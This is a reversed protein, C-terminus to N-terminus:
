RKFGVALNAGVVEYTLNLAGEWGQGVKGVIIAQRKGDGLAIGGLPKRAIIYSPLKYRQHNIIKHGKSKSSIYITSETLFKRGWDKSYRKKNSEYTDVMYNKYRMFIQKVKPMKKFKGIHYHNLKSNILKSKQAWFKKFGDKRNSVHLKGMDKRYNYKWVIKDTVLDQIVVDIDILWAPDTSDHEVIYAFKGSQTYGLPYFNDSIFSHTGKPFLKRDSFTSKVLNSLSLKKPLTTNVRKKNPKTLNVVKCKLHAERMNLKTAKRVYKLIKDLEKKSYNNSVNRSDIVVKCNKQGYNLLSVKLGKIHALNAELHKYRKHPTNAVFSWTVADINSEPASYYTYFLAKHLIIGDKDLVNSQPNAIPIYVSVYGDHSALLTKAFLLITLLILKLKM